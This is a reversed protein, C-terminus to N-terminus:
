SPKGDDSTEREIRKKLKDKLRKVETRQVNTPLHTIGLAEAFVATKREGHLMLDLARSEAESLGERAPAVVTRTVKASEEQRELYRLPDDNVALYKGAEPSLEVDELTAHRRYRGERRLINKLDGQASMCLYAGLRKGRSPDYSTPKKVLAMWADEAAEICFEEPVESSNKEVLWAILSDHFRTALDAPATVDGELLRRHLSLEEEQSVLFDVSAAM